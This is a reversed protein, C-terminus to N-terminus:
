DCGFAVLRVFWALLALVVEVDGDWEWNMGSGFAMWLLAVLWQEARGLAFLLGVGGCRQWVGFGFM